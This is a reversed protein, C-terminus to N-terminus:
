SAAYGNKDLYQHLAARAGSFEKEVAKLIKAGKEGFEMHSIRSVRECEEMLAMAGIQGASGKLAHILDRFADVNRTSVARKMEWLVQEGSKLFTRIIKVVFDSNAGLSRLEQIREPNLVVGTKNQREGRGDSQLYTDPLANASSKKEYPVLSEILELIKRVEVPKTLFADFGAEDCAMRTGPTADATLAVIPIRPGRPRSMRYIKAADIGGMVPMHLDLLAIHFAQKELADLAQEGNEVLVVEHGDRELIKAIVKQNTPNDEAVLISLGLRDEKKWQYREALNAIGKMGPADPRVFHIANYLLTKDIPTSVAASYGHKTIGDLDPEVEGETALIMQVNRIMADAKVLRALEFPDMDLGPQMVLVIQFEEGRGAASVLLGFAQAARDVSFAWGGWSSIYGRVAESIEPDSSVVLVRIKRLSSPGEVPHPMEQQKELPLIFWFISGEGPESALGIEGGMLEVLQKAITTGLGTGGFHRSISSDAQTFREFIRLQAEPNIGIGTDSVEFRVSVSEATEGLLEARLTVEGEETFKVANGLLNLFIKRLQIPDGRLLFPIKSSFRTSLNLGKGLAVPAVMATSSKVLSYLDFDVSEIMYKGAEIKSIDLVDEILSLLTSASAEITAAQDEQEPNLPTDRLLAAMGLIGNLPTRIEHSMNALFRSKADNAEEAKNIAENLKKLLTSVYAPLVVLGVVLGSALATNTKWYENRTIMLGFASVSLIMSAFLYRRGYRFGNGFTVWLLVIFYPSADKGTLYMVIASGGIDGVMGVIRRVPSIKEPRIIINVFLLISFALYFGVYIVAFLENKEILGDKRTYYLLYLLAVFVIVVRILAQEHETDARKSLRERLGRITSKIRVSPTPSARITQPKQKM